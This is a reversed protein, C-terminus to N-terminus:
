LGPRRSTPVDGPAVGFGADLVVASGAANVGYFRGTSPRYIAPDITGNGDYDAPVPVDGAQGLVLQTAAQTGGTRPGYWLGTSPRFSVADARGDGDYDGPAPLDGAAGAFVQLPAGGGSPLAYWLHGGGPGVGPRVIGPDCRGDGDYDAPVAMDGPAVGLNANLVVSAGDARVGFWQGNSPRYVAADVARDGDYDCPVAVDGQQGLTLQIVLTNAGTRPGVWLGTSPNWTVADTRQDGDYDAPVPVEGAAGFRLQFAASGGGPLAYWLAEPVVSPRFVGPEARGDGDFDSLTTRRSASAEVAGVDCATGIPRPTGTQDLTVNCASKDIVVSDARPARYHVLDATNMSGLDIQAPTFVHVGVGCSQDSAVNYGLAWANGPFTSVIRCDAPTGGALNAVLLSDRLRLEQTGTPDNNNSWLGGGRSAGSPERGAANDALTVNNLDLRVSAGGGCSVEYGCDLENFIGGGYGDGAATNGAITTNTLTLTARADAASSTYVNRAFNAVGGGFAATLGGTTTNGTISSREITTTAQAGADYAANSVGAGQNTAVNGHFRSRVISATARAGNGVAYTNIGAGAGFASSVSRSENDDFASDVVSLSSSGNPACAALVSPVCARSTVAGGGTAGAEARTGRLTSRVVNLTGNDNYVAGDAGDPLVIDSITLDNLTLVSTVVYFLRFAGADGARTLTAGHGNITLARPVLPLGLAAVTGAHEWAHPVVYTQGAALEIVNGAVSGAPCDVYGGDAHRANEMAEILTCKGDHQVAEMFTSDVVLTTAQACPPAWLGMSLLLM